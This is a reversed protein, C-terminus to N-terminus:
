EGKDLDISHTMLIGILRAKEKHGERIQNKLERVQKELLKIYTKSSNTLLTTKLAKRAERLQQKLPKKM